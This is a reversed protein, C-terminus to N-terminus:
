YTSNISYKLVKETSISNCPMIPFFVIKQQHAQQKVTKLDQHFYKEFFNIFKGWLM